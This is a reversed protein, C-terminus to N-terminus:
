LDLARWLSIGTWEARQEAAKFRRKGRVAGRALFGSRSSNQLDRKPGGCRFVSFKHGSLLGSLLARVFSYVLNLGPPRNTFTLPQNQIGNSAHPCTPQYSRVLLDCTRTM